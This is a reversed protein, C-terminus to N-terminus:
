SHESLCLASVTGPVVSAPPSREPWTGQGGSLPLLGPCPSAKWQTAWLFSSESSLPCPQDHFYITFEM